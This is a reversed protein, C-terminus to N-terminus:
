LKSQDVFGASSAFSSLSADTPDPAADFWSPFAKEVGGLLSSSSKFITAVNGLLGGSSSSSTTGLKGFSQSNVVLVGVIVVGGVVALLLFTHKSM